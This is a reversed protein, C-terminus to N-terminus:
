PQTTPDIKSSELRLRRNAYLLILFLLIGLALLVWPAIQGLRLFV